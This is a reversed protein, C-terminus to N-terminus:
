GRHVGQGGADLKQEGSRNGRYDEADPSGEDVFHIGGLVQGSRAIPCPGHGQPQGHRDDDHDHNGIVTARVALYSLYILVLAVTVPLFFGANTVLLFVALILLLNGALACCAVIGAFRYYVLMFILVAAMSVAIARQGQKVTDAGLTPSIIQESIPDKNLSAPLSGANFISILNLVEKDTFSGSIQGNDYIASQIRPASLLQEDLIIALHRYFETAKTPLNATTLAGFRRAGISDFTFNEFGWDIFMKQIGLTPNLIWKWATGTVIFSLAMPYLYITRLLGESRIKQDLFIALIIGIVRSIVSIVKKNIIRSSKSGIYYIIFTIFMVLVLSIMGVSQKIFNVGIDTVSVIISTIAAPGALLPIALPFISIRDSRSKLGEEKRQNRKDFLM